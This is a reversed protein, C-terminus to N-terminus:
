CCPGACHATRPRERRPPRRRRRSAARSCGGRRPRRGSRSILRVLPRDRHSRPRRPGPPDRDTPFAARAHAGGGGHGADIRDGARALRGRGLPPPAGAVLVRIDDLGDDGAFLASSPEWATVTEDVAPSGIEVYPPNSVIVDFAVDAPLADFWSGHAVHVNRGARGLGALNARAVDLADVSADTLWVTTGDLPLEFALSLGIAGSGTGLDAVSRAPRRHPGERDGGRGGTRDRAAPDARASRDGLRPPPVGVPRARVPATRGHRPPRADCRPPGGDARDPRRQADRHVRGCEGGVGGGRVAM